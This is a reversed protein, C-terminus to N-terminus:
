VFNSLKFGIDFLKDSCDNVIVSLSTFVINLNTHAHLFHECLAYDPPVVFDCNEIYM